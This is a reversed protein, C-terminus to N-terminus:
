LEFKQKRQAASQISEIIKTYGTCRCLNGSIAERIQDQTPNPNQDLFAKAILIMGSTCYGCQIGGHDIFSQQIPHLIEGSSLGEITLIDKERADVALVLCSLVPMGNVLVTCAGCEGVDCGKKTGTLGIKDRIVDLLTESSKVTVM